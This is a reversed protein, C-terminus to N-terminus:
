LGVNIKYGLELLKIDLMVKIQCLDNHKIVEEFREDSNFNYIVGLYFTGADKIETIKAVAIEESNFRFHSRNLKKWSNLIM